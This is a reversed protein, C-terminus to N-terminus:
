LRKYFFVTADLAGSASRAYGPIEGAATYGIGRYLTESPDGKRTDLVLLSRGEARAAEEVAAMLQTGIGRRRARRHVLLRIVEARHRGNARMALDLQVTGAVGGEDEFVLLVRSGDRLAQEVSAWYAQAEGLSLPPLFGVSAGGDVADILLECLPARLAEAQGADLRRVM